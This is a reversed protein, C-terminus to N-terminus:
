ELVVGFAIEASNDAFGAWLGFCANIKDAARTLWDVVRVGEVGLREQQDKMALARRGAM